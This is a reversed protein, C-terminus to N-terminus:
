IYQSGENCVNLVFCNVTGANIDANKVNFPTTGIKKIQYTKDTLLPIESDVLGYEFKYEQRSIVQVTDMFEAKFTELPDVSLTLEYYVGSLEIENIFYFRSLETVYCYNKSLIATNKNVKIVPNLLSVPEKLIGTIVLSDTMTKNIVNKEDMCKYLTLTM